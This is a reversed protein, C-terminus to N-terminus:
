SDNISCFRVEIFEFYMSLFVTNFINETKKFVKQKIKFTRHNIKFLQFSVAHLYLVLKRRKQKYISRNYPKSIPWQYVMFIPRVHLNLQDRMFSLRVDLLAVTELCKFTRRSFRYIWYDPTPCMSIELRCSSRPALFLFFHFQSLSDSSFIQDQVSFCSGSNSYM